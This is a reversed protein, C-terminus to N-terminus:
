GIREEDELRFMRAPNDFLWQKALQEAEDITMVNKEVFASFAEAMNELAMELHSLSLRLTCYDGGFGHIRNAPLLEVLRKILEIAKLRDIVHLWTLNLYVNPYYKALLLADDCYPYGCHLLIFDTEKNSTIMDHLGAIKAADPHNENWAHLGCHFFIKFQHQQAKKVMYFTLFDDLVILDDYSVATPQTGGCMIVDGWPRQRIISRFVREAEDNTRMKFDLTRRYASGFKIAKVGHQKYDLFLQDIATLFDSFDAITKKVCVELRRIVSWDNLFLDSVTPVNYLFASQFGRYADFPLFTFVARLNTQSVIRLFSDPTNEQRILGDVRSIEAASYERLGYTQRLARDFVQFYTTYKILPIYKQLLVVKQSIERDSSQLCNWEELTMGASFLNDCVYPMLLSFFHIGTQKLDQESQFHEHTDVVPLKQLRLLLEKTLDNM